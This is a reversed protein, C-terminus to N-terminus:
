IAVLTICTTDKETKNLKANLPATLYNTNNKSNILFYCNELVFTAVIFKNVYFIKPGKM